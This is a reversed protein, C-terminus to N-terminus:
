DQGQDLPSVQKKIKVQNERNTNLTQDLRRASHLAAENLEFRSEDMGLKEWLSDLESEISIGCPVREKNRDDECCKWCGAWSVRWIAEARGRARIYHHEVPKEAHKEHPVGSINLEPRRNNSCHIYFYSPNPQLFEEQM